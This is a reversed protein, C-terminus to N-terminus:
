PSNRIHKTVEPDPPLGLGAYYAALEDHGYEHLCDVISLTAELGQCQWPIEDTRPPATSTLDPTDVTVPGGLGDFTAVSILSDIPPVTLGPLSNSDVTVSRAELSIRRVLGADDNIDVRVDAEVALYRTWVAPQMAEVVRPDRTSFCYSTVGPETDDCRQMDGATEAAQQIRQGIAGLPQPLAIPEGAATRVDDPSLVWGSATRVFATGSVHRVELLSPTTEVIGGSNHHAIEYDPGSFAVDITQDLQQDGAVVVRVVTFTGQEVAVTDTIARTVADAPDAGRSFTFALVAVTILAAAGLLMLSRSSTPQRTGALREHLERRTVSTSHPGTTGALPDSLQPISQWDEVVDTPKM